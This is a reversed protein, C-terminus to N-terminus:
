RYEKEGSVDNETKRKNWNIRYNNKQYNVKDQNKMRKIM